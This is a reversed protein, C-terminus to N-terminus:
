LAKSGEKPSKCTLLRQTMDQDLGFAAINLLVFGTLVSAMNFVGSPGFDLDFKFLALKSDAGPSPENLTAIITSFDAPIVNLLCWIVAIAASVYVISQLVDSYIVSRIGGLFTYLLGALALVLTAIVVSDADINGYLIMAVAIAAMYLRAGSAFVRGFLYMMGSRRKAKPGIRKELLEYVTFVKQQYFKPILFASVVFAAIFAGINTALYSFDGQYGQDPGGIFTAASQSTALVSIAVMWTPMSNGGLFFDQSSNARKRNFWWGSLLLIAGYSAFVLWDLFAYNASM